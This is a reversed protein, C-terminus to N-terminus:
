CLQLFRTGLRARAHRYAKDYAVITDEVQRSLSFQYQVREAARKGLAVRRVPDTILSVIADSLLDVRAPKILVAEMQDRLLTPIGGVNSAIIPKHLAAAELLAVPTGESLSPMIFLDAIKVLQLVRDPPQYGTMRVAQTLGSHQIEAWLVDRYEGNGVIMCQLQPYRALLEKLSRILYVFGKVKVLRGVACILFADAPIQFEKRLSANDAQISDPDINVANHILSVFEPAYGQQLLNNLIDSSVAIYHDLAKNTQRELLQYFRGRLRGQHEAFYWSNLTSVLGINAAVAARSGWFKSQPNQADILTFGRKSILQVLNRKLRPECKHKGVAYVELNLDNAQQFIPSEALTALAAHESPMRQVLRLSRM